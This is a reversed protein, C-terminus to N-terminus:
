PKRRSGAERESETRLLKEADERSIQIVGDKGPSAPPPSQPPINRGIKQRLSDDAKEKSSAIVLYYYCTNRIEVFAVYAHRRWNLKIHPDASVGVHTRFHRLEELHIHYNGDWLVRDMISMM